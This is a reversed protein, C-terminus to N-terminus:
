RDIEPRRIRRGHCSLAVTAEDTRLAIARGCAGSGCPSRGGSGGTGRHGGASSGQTHDGPDDADPWIVVHRGALPTWDAKRAAKSGSPSTIAVHDPFRKGAADATKEGEVVLVPADPMSALRDLGYLPRPEPFGKSRWERVGHPGECFVFPKVQKAALQGNPPRDYRAVFGLLRGEADHYRWSTTFAYEKLAFRNLITMTLPVADSPVPLIPKWLDAQHQQAQGIEEDDLPAFTDTTNIM